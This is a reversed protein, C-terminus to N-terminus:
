IANESGPPYDGLFRLAEGAENLAYVEGATFHLKRALELAKESFFLCSDPKSFFYIEATNLLLEVRNTDAPANELLHKM